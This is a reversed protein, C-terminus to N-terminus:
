PQRYADITILVGGVSTGSDKFTGMPLEEIKAGLGRLWAKFEVQKKQSGYVWSMSAIAVLRGSDNLCEYMKRIHDIDQNKSFPPNAIIRDYNKGEHTLFDDGILNFGLGSKRLVEQNQPMLEYCDPNIGFENIAKIIAGQGASPELVENGVYLEAMHVMQRALEEPTAFFQFEKKLNRDEGGAVESLLETPDFDFVFGGVKGGKWKGGIKQLAKAVEQYMSRDLQIAPLKVVNGDVSCERLIDEKTM